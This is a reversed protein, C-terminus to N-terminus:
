HTVKEFDFDLMHRNITELFIGNNGSSDAKKKKRIPTQEHTDENLENEAQGSPDHHYDHLMDILTSNKLDYCTTVVGLWLVGDVEYLGVFRGKGHVGKLGEIFLNLLSVRRLLFLL